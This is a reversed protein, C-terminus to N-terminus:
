FTFQSVRARARSVIATISKRPAIAIADRGCVHSRVHRMSLDTFREVSTGMALLFHNQVATLM